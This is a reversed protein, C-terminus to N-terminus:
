LASSWRAELRKVVSGMLAPCATLYWYTDAVHIHGLYTSLVQIRREPDVNARYWRILTEVAFRHRFDHLRPGRSATAGRLGIRRSLSYFTRRVQAADLRNGHASVFFYESTQRGAFYRNRRSHFALLARRTSAHLPVLRSQDCKTRRITLIGNKLDVDSRQLGLAEGIRLGSVALLGYLTHYTWRRLADNPTVQLSANLLRRIEKDTYLYPRARKPRFPLLGVAPVETRADIARRYRAYGRAFSLRQASRPSDSTAAGRAWELALPVTIHRVAQRNLFRAYDLLEPEARKLKFGLGRRLALYDLVDKRWANM